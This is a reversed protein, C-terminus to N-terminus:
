FLPMERFIVPELAMSFTEVLTAARQGQPIPFPPIPFLSFGLIWKILQVCGALERKWSADEM